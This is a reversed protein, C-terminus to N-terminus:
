GLDVCALRISTNPPYHIVISMADRRVGFGHWAQGHGRGFGDTTVIPWIENVADVPGGIENQYHSGGAPINSCPANHVHAPYVTNADLGRVTVAVSTWDPTRVMVARGVINYGMDAGGPLTQFTGSTVRVGHSAQTPVTMGFVMAVIAAFVALRKYGSM